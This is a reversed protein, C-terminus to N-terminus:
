QSKEKPQDAEIFLDPIRSMLWQARHHALTNALRLTPVKDPDIALAAELLTRFEVLNQERVAV